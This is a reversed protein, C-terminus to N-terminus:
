RNEGRVDDSRVSWNPASGRRSTAAIVAAATPTVGTRLLARAAEALTAGSTVLDDVLVVESGAALSRRWRGPRPGPAFAGSLNATRGAASLGASDLRDGCSVLMPAVRVQWGARRAWVTAGRALWRVHDGGRLRVASASSPVPVLLIPRNTRVSGAVARGLAEALPGGVARRGGDKFALLLNRVVGGYSAVATCPPVEQRSLNQDVRIVPGGLARVCRPCLVRGPIGCGACDVPLVLDALAVFFNKAGLHDKTRHPNTM